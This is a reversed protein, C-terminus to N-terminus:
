QGRRTRVVTTGRVRILREQEALWARHRRARRRRVGVPGLGVLLALVVTGGAWLETALAPYRTPSLTFGPVLGDLHAAETRVATMADAEPSGAGTRVVEVLTVVRGTEWVAVAVSGSQTAKAATVYVSGTSGTVGSVTFTTSRTLGQSKYASATLAQGALQRDVKSAVTAQSTLFVADVLGQQSDKGPGPWTGIVVGSQHPHAKADATLASLGASSAQNQSVKAAHPFDKTGNTREVLLDLRSREITSIPILFSYAVASAAVIVAARLLAGPWSRREGTSTSATRAPGDVTEDPDAAGPSGAATEAPETVMPDTIMPDTIMPDTIVPDTIVPDAAENDGPETV